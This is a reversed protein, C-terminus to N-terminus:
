LLAGENGEAPCYPGTVQSATRQPPRNTAALPGSERVPQDCLRFVLGFRDM